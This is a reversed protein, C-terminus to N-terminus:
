SVVYNVLDQIQEKWKSKLLTRGFEGALPVATTVVVVGNVDQNFKLLGCYQDRNNDIVIADYTYSDCGRKGHKINVHNNPAISRIYELTEELSFDEIVNEEKIKGYHTSMLLYDGEKLVRKTDYISPSWINTISKWSWVHNGGSYVSRKVDNSGFIGCNGNWASDWYLNTRIDLEHICEHLLHCFAPLDDGDEIKHFVVVDNYDDSFTRSILTYELGFSKVIRNVEDWDITDRNTKYLRYHSNYFDLSPMNDFENNSYINTRQTFEM